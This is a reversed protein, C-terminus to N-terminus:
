NATDETKPRITSPQVTMRVRNNFEITKGNDGMRMSRAVLDGQDTTIKVPAKSILQGARMDFRAQELKATMGSDTDVQFPESFTVVETKRDYVASKAEISATAGGGIPLSAKIDQLTIINPHGLDQTARAATLKYLEGKANQGTLVPDSMVLKGGEIATRDVTINSPLAANLISAGFFGATVLVAVMPFAFKMAKVLLSHRRARRYERHSRGPLRRKPRDPKQADTM